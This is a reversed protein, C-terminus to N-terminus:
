ADVNFVIEPYYKHVVDILDKVSRSPACISILEHVGNSVSAGASGAM